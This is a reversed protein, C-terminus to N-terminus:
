DKRKGSQVCQNREPYARIMTLGRNLTKYVFKMNQTNVSVNLRFVFEDSFRGRKMIRSTGTATFIRARLKYM